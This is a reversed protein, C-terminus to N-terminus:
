TLVESDWDAINREEKSFGIGVLYVPKNENKYSAAYERDKIQQIATEATEDLKFEMLYIYDDAKILLDLRGKHKTIESQVYLGMFSTILYIITHFYGEWTEFKSQGNKKKPLLHYSIDSLLIKLHDVFLEINGEELGRQMKIFSNGVTSNPKFTFAELLNHYFSKSVEINPYGLYYNTEFGRRKKNKITLYGTQFLLNAMDLDELSFKDFFSQSVEKNEMEQPEVGRNRISEVLFIPTGTAFWFNGFYSKGFFSLISFPNYLSTDEGFSYGNYWFKMGKLLDEETIGSIKASNKIHDKFYTTLEDHTIGLLDYSLPDITLDTLNNLDSFLSM